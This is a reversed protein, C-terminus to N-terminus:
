WYPRRRAVAGWCTEVTLPSYFLPADRTQTLGGAIVNGVVGVVTTWDAGGEAQPARSAPRLAFTILLQDSLLGRAAAEEYRGRPLRLQATFLNEADFGVDIQQLHIVSRM